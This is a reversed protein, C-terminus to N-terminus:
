VYDGLPVKYKTCKRRRTVYKRGSWCVSGSTGAVHCKNYSFSKLSTTVKFCTGKM